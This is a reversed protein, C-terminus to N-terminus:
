RVFLSPSPCVFLVFVLVVSSKQGGGPLGLGLGTAGGFHATTDVHLGAWRRREGTGVTVMM